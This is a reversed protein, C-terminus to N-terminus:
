PIYHTALHDAPVLILSIKSTRDLQQANEKAAAASASASCDKAYLKPRELQMSPPTSIDCQSPPQELNLIYMKTVYEGV